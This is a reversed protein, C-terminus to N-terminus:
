PLHEANFGYGNHATFGRRLCWLDVRKPVRAFFSRDEGLWRAPKGIGLLGPPPQFLDHFVGLREVGDDDQYRMDANDSAVAVLAARNMCVLGFGGTTASCARGGASLLKEIQVKPLDVDVMPPASENRRLLYPALCIAPTLGDVAELMWALTETSGEVDDDVSFWVDASSELAAHFHRSRAKAIVTSGTDLRLEVDGMLQLRRICRVGPLFNEGASPPSRFQKGLEKAAGEIGLARGLTYCSMSAFIRM